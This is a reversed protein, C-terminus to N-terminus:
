FSTEIGDQDEEPFLRNAVLVELSFQPGDAERDLIELVLNTFDEEPIGWAELIPFCFTMETREVRGDAKIVQILQALLTIREDQTFHQVSTVKANDELTALEKELDEDNLNESRGIERIIDLEVPSVEGDIRSLQLLIQIHPSM